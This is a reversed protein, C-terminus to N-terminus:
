FADALSRVSFVKRFNEVSKPRATYYEVEVPRGPLLNFFNDSFRGDGDDVRLYVAKAVKDSSLRIRFGKDSASLDVKISAKGIKLEKFPKLFLDNSSVTRGGVELAATIVANSQDGGALLESIDFEAYSKSTLPDVTLGISRDSLTNGALDIATIKLNGKVAGPDDSVVFFRVKGDEVHPSVLFHTFFRKAYFHLAKWHGFYDTSSWSAVPWCDNLQWYLAGMNRPRIRRLHETGLKIGEAQLVQSVYLFSEFDKPEAYERLMYERILQNGRPHRQHALM